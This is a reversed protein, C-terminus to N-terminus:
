VYLQDRGLDPVLFIKGSFPDLNVTSIFEIGDSHLFFHRIQIYLIFVQFADELSGDESVAFTTLKSDWYSVAILHKYGSDWELHCTSRGHVKKRDIVTVQGSSRNLAGTLVESGSDNIVETTMYVLDLAPHKMIFAPNPEIKSSKLQKLKGLEPDFIVSYFGEGEEGGPNHALVSKDTYGGLLFLTKPLGSSVPIDKNTLASPPM